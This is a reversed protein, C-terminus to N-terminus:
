VQSAVTRQTSHVASAVTVNGLMALIGTVRVMVTILLLLFTVTAAAVPCIIMPAAVAATALPSRMVIMDFPSYQTTTHNRQDPHTIVAICGGNTCRAPQYHPAASTSRMILRRRHLLRM